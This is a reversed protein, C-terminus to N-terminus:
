AAAITGGLMTHDLVAHAPTPSMMGSDHAAEGPILVIVL